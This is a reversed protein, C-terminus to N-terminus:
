KLFTPLQKESLKHQKKLSDMIQSYDNAVAWIFTERVNKDSLVVSYKEERKVNETILQSSAAVLNAANPYKLAQLAKEAKSLHETLKSPDFFDNCEEGKKLYYISQRVFDDNQEYLTLM